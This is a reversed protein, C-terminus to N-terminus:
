CLKIVSNCYNKQSLKKISKYAYTIKNDQVKKLDKKVESYLHFKPDILNLIQKPTLGYLPRIDVIRKNKKYLINEFIYCLDNSNIPYRLPSDWIEIPSKSLISRKFYTVLSYKGMGQGIIQPLRLVTCKAESLAIKEM